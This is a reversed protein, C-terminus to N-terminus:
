DKGSGHLWPKGNNKTQLRAPVPCIAKTETVGSPDPLFLKM